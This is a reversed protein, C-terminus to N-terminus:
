IRVTGRSDVQMFLVGAARVDVATSVSGHGGGIVAHAVAEASQVTEAFTRRLNGNRDRWSVELVDVM